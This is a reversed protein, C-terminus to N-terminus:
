EALYLYEKASGRGRGELQIELLQLVGDSLQLLLSDGQAILKFHSDVVVTGAVRAEFIKLRKGAYKGSPISVWAIPWPNFGRVMREARGIHTDFTIEAKDKSIDDQYCYTALAEDQKIPNLKNHLLIKVAEVLMGGSIESLENMLQGSTWDSDVRHERQLLIDGADLEKVMQQITVGTNELGDLIARQVPVAGRLEPLLSGHVNWAGYKPQSLMNDPVMQGYSAVIILEPNTSDLIQQSEQRLKEPQFIPINQAQLKQEWYHKIPGGQLTQDRGVPKDPQTVIGVLDIFGSAILVDLPKVGFEGTGIFLVKLM